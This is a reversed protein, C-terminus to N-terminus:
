SLQYLSEQHDFNLGQQLSSESGVKLEYPIQPSDVVLMLLDWAWNSWLGAQFLKRCENSLLSSTYEKLIYINNVM